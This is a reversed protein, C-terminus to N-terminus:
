LDHIVNGQPGPDSHIPGSQDHWVWTALLGLRGSHCDISQFTDQRDGWPGSPVWQLSTGVETGGLGLFYGREELQSLM